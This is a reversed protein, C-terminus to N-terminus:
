VSLFRSYISALRKNFVASLRQYVKLGFLSNANFVRNMKRTDIKLTQIDTNAIATATYQANEVLSSWGFIDSQEKLSYVTKEGGIKLDVTGKELIFLANASDGESVVEKNKM